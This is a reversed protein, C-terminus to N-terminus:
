GNQSETIKVDVHWDRNELYRIIYIYLIYIYKKEWIFYKGFKGKVPVVQKLGKQKSDKSDNELRKVRRKKRRLPVLSTCHQVVFRYHQM